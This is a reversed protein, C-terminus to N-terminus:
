LAEWANKALDILGTLGGNQALMTMGIMPLSVPNGNVKYVMGAFDDAMQPIENFIMHNELLSPLNQYQKMFKMVFSEELLTKYVSLSEASYDDRGHAKIVAEGALRGSEIALDMGRVTYGLNVVMAAADGAVLVGDRVLEPMMKLGGETVLHASYEVLKGDKVYPAITPHAKVREVMDPVSCEVRGIDAITTVIGLSINEKNTYLFAGGLNGGTPDGAMMWAAGEDDSNLGFRENIGKAGGIDIVEKVGVAVDKPDLEAKMGLKQALLSNVGDALIVVDADVEEGEVMIGVVKGDEVVIDDVCQGEAIMAGAEEAKEALWKDFKSRLVSYSPAPLNALKDSNYAFSLAGGPTMLSLREQVIKREVPAEAAFGPILKELSHGYLRGGSSNKSGCFKGREVVMVDLGARAMTLAAACGALGGGVVIADFKEESSM